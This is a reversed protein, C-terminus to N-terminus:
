FTKLQERKWPFLRVEAMRNAQVRVVDEGSLDRSVALMSQQESCAPANM